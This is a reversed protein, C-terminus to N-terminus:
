RCLGGVVQMTWWRERMERRKKIIVWPHRLGGLGCDANNYSTAMLVRVTVMM